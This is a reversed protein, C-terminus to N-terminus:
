TGLLPFEKGVNRSMREIGDELALFPNKVRSPPVFLNDRFTPLSKGSIATYYNLHLCNEDAERSFDSIGKKYLYTYTKTHM